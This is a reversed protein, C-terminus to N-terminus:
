TLLPGDKPRLLVFNHFCTTLVGDQAESPAKYTPDKFPSIMPRLSSYICVVNSQVLEHKVETFFLYFWYSLLAFFCGLQSKYSTDAALSDMSRLRSVNTEPSLNASPLLHPVPEPRCHQAWHQKGKPNM